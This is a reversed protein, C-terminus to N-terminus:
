QCGSDSSCATAFGIMKLVRHGPSTFGVVFGAVIAVILGVRLGNHQM